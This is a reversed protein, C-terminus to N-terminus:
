FPGYEPRERLSQTSFAALPPDELVVARVFDPAEAAVAIAIMAGLSHGVVVAPEGARRQLFATVDGAYDTLRYRGDARGSRGHGRLDLAFLRWRLALDPMVSLWGQWRSTVGHLLVLPPGSAQDAVYNISVTGTDFTQEQLM